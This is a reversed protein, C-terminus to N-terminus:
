YKGFSPQTSCSPSSIQSVVRWTQRSASARLPKRAASMAAMPLTSSQTAWIEMPDHEVWGAQPYFQAFERQAQSVVNADRDFVM